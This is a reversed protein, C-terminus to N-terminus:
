GACFIWGSTAKRSPVSSLIAGNPGVLAHANPLWVCAPRAVGVSSGSAQSEGISGRSTSSSSFSSSSGLSGIVSLMPGDCGAMCPVTRMTSSSDPSVDERGVHLDAVQVAAELLHALSARPRLAERVDVAEVVHRGHEVVHAERERDLLHQADRHGLAALVVPHDQTLERADAIVEGAVAGHGHLEAGERREEVVDAPSLDPSMRSSSVPARTVCLKPRTPPM